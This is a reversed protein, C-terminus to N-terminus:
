TSRVTLSTPTSPPRATYVQWGHFICHYALSAHSPNFTPTLSSLFIFPLFQHIFPPISLCFSQNLSSSYLVLLISLPHTSAIFRYTSVSMSLVWYRSLFFLEAKVRKRMQEHLQFKLFSLLVFPLCFPLFSSYSPFFSSSFYLFPFAPLSGAYSKEKVEM